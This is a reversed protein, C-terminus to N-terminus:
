QETSEADYAGADDLEALVEVPTPAIPGLDRRVSDCIVGVCDPCNPVGKVVSTRGHGGCLTGALTLGAYHTLLASM